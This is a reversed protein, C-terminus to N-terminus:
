NRQVSTVFLKNAKYLLEQVKAASASPLIRKLEDDNFDQLILRLLKGNRNLLAIENQLHKEM